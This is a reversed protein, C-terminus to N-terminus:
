LQDLFAQLPDPEGRLPAIRRAEEKTLQTNVEKGGELKVGGPPTRLTQLILVVSRREALPRFLLPSALREVGEAAPVIRTSPDDTDKFHVIIPLGFQARPFKLVPPQLLPQRHKAASRGLIVRIADPEPWHSRGPRNSQQGPNRSQRFKQYREVVERWSREVVRWKAGSLSPVGKPAEGPRVYRAWEAKLTQETPPSVGEPWVAGFGRRTRGGLGGFREWAWLAAEIEEGLAQPYRLRLRFRVGTRVPYNNPDQKNSQLPFAVYAPAVEPRNKPFSRGAELYFPHKEEGPDLREVEVQLLSAQGGEGAASGFLGAERERMAELSLGGARAARWWFRLQGKLSTARVTSVPDAYKPNVGGGFLPTLLRYDRELVAQGPELSPRYADQYPLVKRM